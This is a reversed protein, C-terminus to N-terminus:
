RLGKIFEKYEEESMREKLTKGVVLFDSCQPNHYVVYVPINMKQEIEDNLAKKSRWVPYNIDAGEVDDVQITEIYAVSVLKAGIVRQEFWDGDTMYCRQPLARRHWQSYFTPREGTIEELPDSM